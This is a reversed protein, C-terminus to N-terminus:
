TPAPERRSEFRRTVRFTVGVWLAPQILAQGFAIDFRQVLSRKRLDHGQALSTLRSGEVLEDTINGAQDPTWSRRVLRGELLKFALV